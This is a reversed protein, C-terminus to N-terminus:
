SALVVDVRVKSTSNVIPYTYDAGIDKKYFLVKESTTPGIKFSYKRVYRHGNIISTEFPSNERFNYTNSTSDLELESPNFTLTVIASYCYKKYQDSLKNYADVGVQDGRMYTGFNRDAVYYSVSNTLYLIAYKSNVSDEINYSFKSRKVSIRFGGSISKGYPSTSTATTLVDVTDTEYFNGNPIITIQYSDTHMNEYIVGSNKSLVCSVKGHCNVSVEYSIDSTTYREDDKKNNLDVTIVYPNVGDWDNINHYKTNSSLASSNFYFRKSQLIYDNLINYIYKGYAINFILILSLVLAILISSKKYKRIINM